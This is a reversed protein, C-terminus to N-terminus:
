RRTGVVAKCPHHLNADLPCFVEPQGVHRSVPEPGDVWVAGDVNVLISNSARLVDWLCEVRDPLFLKLGRCVACLMNFDNDHVLIEKAAAVENGTDLDRDGLNDFPWLAFDVKPHTHAVGALSLSLTHTHSHTLTHTHTHTHTLTHSLAHEHTHTHPFLCVCLSVPVCCACLLCVYVCESLSVSVSVTVSVRVCDRLCAFVLLCLCLCECVRVVVQKHVSEVCNSSSGAPRTLSCISYARVLAPANM